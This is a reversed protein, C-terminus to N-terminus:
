YIERKKWNNRMTQSIRVIKVAIALKLQIKRVDDRATFWQETDNEGGLGKNSPVQHSASEVCLYPLYGCVMEVANRDRPYLIRDWPYFYPFYISTRRVLSWTLNVQRWNNQKDLFDHM